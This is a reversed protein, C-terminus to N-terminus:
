AASPRSSGAQEDTEGQQENGAPERERGHLDDFGSLLRQGPDVPEFREARAHADM